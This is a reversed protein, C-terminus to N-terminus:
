CTSESLFKLINENVMKPEDQQVWHSAGEIFKLTLNKAYNRSREAMELSLAGDRTGWILQIPVGGIPSKLCKM